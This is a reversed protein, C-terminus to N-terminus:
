AKNLALDCWMWVVTFLVGCDLFDCTLLCVGSFFASFGWLVECGRRELCLRWGRNWLKKPVALMYCGSVLVLDPQLDGRMADFEPSRPKESCQMSIRKDEWLVVSNRM